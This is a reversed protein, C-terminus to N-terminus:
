LSAMMTLPIWAYFVSGQRVGHSACEWEKSINHLGSRWALVLESRMGQHRRRWAGDGIARHWRGQAAAPRTSARIRRWIDSSTTSTRCREAPRLLEPKRRWRLLRQQSPNSSHLATRTCCLQKCRQQLLTTRHESWSSRGLRHWLLTSSWSQSPSTSHSLKLHILIHLDNDLLHL